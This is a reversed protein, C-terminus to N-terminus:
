PRKRLRSVARSLRKFGPGPMARVRGAADVAFVWRRAAFYNRVALAGLGGIAAGVMVDTPHHVAITLRTACIVLAFTWFALSLRPWLAGFAVAIAVATTAHGSPMSGFAYEPFPVTGDFVERFYAFPAYFFADPQGTLYPRARGILPKLIATLLGPLAVAALLFGLRLSATAFVRRDSPVDASRGAFVGLLLLVALPWLVWGSRGYASLKGSLDVLWGPLHRAETISWVDLLVKAALFLALFAFFGTVVANVDPWFPGTGSTRQPKRFVSAVASSVITRGQSV